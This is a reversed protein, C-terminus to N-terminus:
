SKQTNHSEPGKPGTEYGLFWYCQAVPIAGPPAPRDALHYIDLVTTIAVLRAHRRAAPNTGGLLLPIVFNKSPAQRWATQLWTGGLLVLPAGPLKPDL